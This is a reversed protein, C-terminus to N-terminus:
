QGPQLDIVTLQSSSWQRVRLLPNLRLGAKVLGEESTGGDGVGVGVGLPVGVGVGVGVRLGVASVV